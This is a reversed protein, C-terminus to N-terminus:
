TVVICWYGTMIAFIEVMLKISVVDTPAQPCIHTKESLFNIANWLEDGIERWNKLYHAIESTLGAGFLHEVFDRVAIVNGIAEQVLGVFITM